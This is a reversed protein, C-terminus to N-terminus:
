KSDIYCGFLLDNGCPICSFLNHVFTDTKESKRKIFKLLFLPNLTGSGARPSRISMKFSAAFPPVEDITCDYNTSQGIVIMDEYTIKNDLFEHRIPSPGAINSFLSIKNDAVISERIIMSRDPWM